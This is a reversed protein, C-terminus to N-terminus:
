VSLRSRPLYRPPGRAGPGKWQRLDHDPQGLACKRTYPSSKFTSPIISYPYVTRGERLVAVSSKAHGYASDDGLVESVVQSRELRYKYVGDQFM